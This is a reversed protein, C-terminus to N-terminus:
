FRPPKPLSLFRSVPNPELRSVVYGLLLRLMLRSVFLVISFLGLLLLIEVFVFLATPAGLEPVPVDLPLLELPLLLEDPVLEPVEPV